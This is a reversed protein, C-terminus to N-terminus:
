NKVMEGDELYIAGTTIVENIGEMGSSIAVKDGLIKAIRINVRKAKGDSITFIEAETGNTRILAEIPITIFKDKKSSIITVDATLGAALSAPQNRFSIEVDFTGGGNGGLSAKDYVYGEFKKGPYAELVIEAKDGFSVNAWEADVLGVKIRWDSKGVGMIVYVPNGPATIEGSKMIQKVIRGTIPARVESFNKNFRAIDVSKKSVELATSVNQFQELTAVSDAFLNKVRNYDREAKKLGEEAQKVQADIEDLILIALLQGKKVYSGEEVYTKHIVGGTKFSPRAENDSLVIGMTKIIGSDSFNAVKVTKVMTAEEIIRNTEAIEKEQKCSSFNVFIMLTIAIVFQAKM